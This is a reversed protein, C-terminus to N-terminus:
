KTFTPLKGRDRAGTVKAVPVVVKAMKTIPPATSSANSAALNRNVGGNEPDIHIQDLIEITELIPDGINRIGDVAWPEKIELKLVHSVM